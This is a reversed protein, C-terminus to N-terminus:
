NSSAIGQALSCWGDSYFRSVSVQSPIKRGLRYIGHPDNQSFYSLAVARYEIAMPIQSPPSIRRIKAIGCRACARRLKNCRATLKFPLNVSCRKAMSQGGPTNHSEVTVKRGFM